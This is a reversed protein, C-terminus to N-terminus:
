LLEGPEDSGDYCDCYGDNVANVNVSKRGDLCRFVSSGSLAYVAALDPQVGRLLSASEATILHLALLLAGLASMISRM